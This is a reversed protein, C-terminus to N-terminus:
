VGGSFLADGKKGFLEMKCLSKVALNARERGAGNLAEAESARKKVLRANQKEIFRRATEVGDSSGFKAPEEFGLHQAATISGQEESRV